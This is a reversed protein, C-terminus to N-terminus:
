RSNGTIPKSAETFIEGTSAPPSSIGRLAITEHYGKTGIRVSNDLFERQMIGVQEHLDLMGYRVATRFVEDTDGNGALSKAFQMEHDSIDFKLTVTPMM